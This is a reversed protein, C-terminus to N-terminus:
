FEVHLVEHFWIQMLSHFGLFWMPREFSYYESGKVAERRLKRRRCNPGQTPREKM